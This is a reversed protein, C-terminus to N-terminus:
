KGWNKAVSDASGITVVVALYGSIINALGQFEPIFYAFVQVIAAGTVQWFRISTLLVKFKSIM